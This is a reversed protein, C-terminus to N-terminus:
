SPGCGPAGRGQGRGGHRGPRWLAHLPAPAACLGPDGAQPLRPAPDQVRAWAAAQGGPGRGWPGASSPSRRWSPGLRVRSARGMRGWLSPSGIRTGKVPPQQPGDAPLGPAPGLWSAAGGGRGGRGGARTELRGSLNRRAGRGPGAWGRTGGAASGPRGPSSGVSPRVSAGVLPGRAARADPAPAPSRGPAGGLAGGGASRYDPKAETEQSPRSVPPEPRLGHAWGDSASPHSLAAGFGHGPAPHPGPM